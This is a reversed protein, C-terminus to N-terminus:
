SGDGGGAMRGEVWNKELAAVWSLMVEIKGWSVYAKGKGEWDYSILM